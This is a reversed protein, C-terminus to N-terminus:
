LASELYTDIPMTVSTLLIKMDHFPFSEDFYNLVNPKYM